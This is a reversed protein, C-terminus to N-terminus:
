KSNPISTKPKRLKKFVECSSLGLLLRVPMCFLFEIGLGVVAPDIRLRFAEIVECVTLMEELDVVGSVGFRRKLSWSRMLCEAAELVPVLLKAEMGDEPDSEETGSVRRGDLVVFRIFPLLLKGCLLMRGVEALGVPKFGGLENFLGDTEAM